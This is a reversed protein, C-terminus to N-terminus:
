KRLPTFVNGGNVNSVYKKSTTGNRSTCTLDYYGIRRNPDGEFAMIFHTTCNNLKVDGNQTKIFVDNGNPPRGSNTTGGFGTGSKSSGYMGGSSVSSSKKSNYAESKRKRAQEEAAKEERKRREEFQKKRDEDQKRQQELQKKREEDRKKQQEFQKKRDEEQKKRQEMQKKMEDDHKKQDEQFKKANKSISDMANSRIFDNKKYPSQYLKQYNGKIQTQREQFEVQKSQLKVQKEQFQTQQKQLKVGKEQLQKQQEQIKPLSNNQKELLSNLEQIKQQCATVLPSTYNPKFGYNAMIGPITVNNFHDYHQQFMINAKPFKSSHCKRLHYFIDKEKQPLNAEFQSIAVQIAAECGQTQRQIEQSLQKEAIEIQQSLEIIEKEENQFSTIDEILKQEENEFSAIDEVLKKEDNKFATIDEILNKKDNQLSTIDDMLKQEDVALVGEVLEEEFSEDCIDIIEQKGDKVQEPPTIVLNTNLDNSSEPSIETTFTENKMESHNNKDDNEFHLACGLETFEEKPLNEYNVTSFLGMEYKAKMWNQLGADEPLDKYNVTNFLDIEYKGNKEHKQISVISSTPVIRNKFSALEASLTLPETPKFPNNNVDYILTAITSGSYYGSVSGVLGGVFGCVTSGIPPAIPACCAVGIEAMSTGVAWAGTWGGIIRSGERYTNDYNGTKQSLEIEHYFSMGDLTMGIGTLGYGLARGANWFKQEPYAPPIFNPNPIFQDRITHTYKPSLGDLQELHTIDVKWGGKIEHSYVRKLFAREKDGIKYIEFDEPDIKGQSVMPALKEAVDIAPRKTNIEYVYAHNVGSPIEKPFTAAIERSTSTSIYASDILYDEGPTMAHLLLNINIGRAIFGEDFIGSYGRADGRYLPPKITPDNGLTFGARTPFLDLDNETQEQKDSLNVDMNLNNQRSVTM